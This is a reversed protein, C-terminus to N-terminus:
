VHELAGEVDHLPQTGTCLTDGLLVLRHTPDGGPNALSEATCTSGGEGTHKRTQTHLVM